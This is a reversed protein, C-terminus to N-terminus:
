ETFSNWLGLQHERRARESVIDRIAKPGGNVESTGRYHRAVVRWPRHTRLCPVTRSVEVVWSMYSSLFEVEM